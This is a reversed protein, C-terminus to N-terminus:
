TTQTKKLLCQMLLIGSTFFPVFFFDCFVIFSFRRSFFALFAALDAYAVYPMTKRNKLPPVSCSRRISGFEHPLFSPNNKGVQTNFFNYDFWLPKESKKILSRVETREKFHRIFFPPKTMVFTQQNAVSEHTAHLPAHLCRLGDRMGNKKVFEKWWSTSEVSPMSFYM